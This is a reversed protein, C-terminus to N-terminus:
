KCFVRYGLSKELSKKRALEIAEESYDMAIMNYGEMALAIANRGTGCGFDLIVSNRDRFNRKVFRIVHENPWILNANTIEKDWFKKTEQNIDM